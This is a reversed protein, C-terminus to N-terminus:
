TSKVIAVPIRLRQDITFLSRVRTGDCYEGDLFFATPRASRQKSRLLSFNSLDTRRTMIM